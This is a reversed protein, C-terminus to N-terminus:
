TGAIGINRGKRGRFLRREGRLADRLIEIRRSGSFPTWRRKEILRLADLSAAQVRGHLLGQSVAPHTRRELDPLFGHSHFGWWSIALHTKPDFKLRGMSLTTDIRGIAKGVALRNKPDKVQKLIDAYLYVMEYLMYGYGGPESGNAAIYAEKIKKSRATPLPATIYNYLM